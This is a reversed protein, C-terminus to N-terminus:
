WRVKFRYARGLAELDRKIKQWDAEAQPGLRYRRMFTNIYGARRYVERAANPAAGRDEYREKLRDTAEEFNRVFSNIEDETKTGNFSSHDLADDLSKKFRDSDEELMKLLQKVNENGQAHARELPFALWLLMVLGFIYIPKKM